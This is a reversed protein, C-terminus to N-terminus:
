AVGRNIYVYDIGLETKCFQENPNDFIVESSGWYRELEFIWAPVMLPASKM